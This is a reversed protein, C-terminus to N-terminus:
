GLVIEEGASTRRLWRDHSAVVVTGPYDPISEELRSALLLSFHNTPEDLLLVDPPHRTLTRPPAAADTLVQAVTRNLAFPPQQHFLGVVGPATVAGSDPRDAGAVIRLLTSKGSGNEGILCAREGSSVTFSLDTLVRRDPFSRSVGDVRLHDPGSVDSSSFPSLAASM